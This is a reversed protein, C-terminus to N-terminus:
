GILVKNVKLEMPYFCYTAKSRQLLRNESASSISELTANTNRYRNNINKM